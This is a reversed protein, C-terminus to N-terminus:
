QNGEQEAKWALWATPDTAWVKIEFNELTMILQLTNLGWKETSKKHCSMVAKPYAPDIYWFDNSEYVWRGYLNVPEKEPEVPVEVTTAKPPTIPFWHTAMEEAGNLILKEPTTISYTEKFCFKNNQVLIYGRFNTDLSSIDHWPLAMLPLGLQKDPPLHYYGDPMKFPKLYPYEWELGFSNYVCDHANDWLCRHILDNDNAYDFEKATIIQGDEFPCPKMKLLEEITKPNPM